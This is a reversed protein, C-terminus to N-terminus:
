ALMQVKATEWGSGGTRLGALVQSPALGCIETYTSFGIGLQVPDNNERRQRQEQRLSGYEALEMVRDLAAQIYMIDYQIGTPNTTPEDFPDYFNKHRMEITEMNM